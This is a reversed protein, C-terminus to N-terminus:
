EQLSAPLTLAHLAIGLAAPDHRIQGCPTITALDAAVIAAATGDCRPGSPRVPRSGDAAYASLADAAIPSGNVLVYDFLDFGVHGRIAALHDDLTYGDTEGPETMLNAVYVRTAKVASLTAAIGDVLLNPLVSTYLSGPGVIILDANVLSEIAEPVPRVPRELALRRIRGRRAAIATEGRVDSGDEFAATLHVNELTAPLVRGTIGIQTGLRSIARLLDGETTSLAALLLNGIPHGAKGSEDTFREHLISSLGSPERVLAALCNRIDGPPLVGLSERLGGSSGGDDMVTVIATLWDSRRLADHAEPFVTRLGVLVTPLGTGGGMAVVRPRALQGRDPLPHVGSGPSAATIHALM